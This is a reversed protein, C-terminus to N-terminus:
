EQSKMLYTLATAATCSFVQDNIHAPVRIIKVNPNDIQKELTDFLAAREKPGEFPRGEADNMSTGQEPLLLVMPRKARNWKAAMVEGMKINETINSRMVTIMPNHAILHRKKYKEPVTDPPGFTVMDTAGVSVVQPIGREVAANLRDEGAAFIGDFLTDAWETTTLDLVGEFMGRRIMEEMTRGGTGSAHFVIVEFGEAELYAKAQEVCPTTVGYMTAAILPKSQMPAEYPIINDCGVMGAIAAAANYFVHQSIRNLGCVDTISPIMVLDSTGVFPAVNGSAATSVMVKPLGLPLARMAPTALATGGAGGLSIVGDVFGKECLAPLLRLLGESLAKVAKGRDKDQMLQKLDYGAARAVVENSIDPEFCPAFTGTHITLTGLGFRELLNKIYLFEEGKSDFTGPIAITKKLNMEGERGIM